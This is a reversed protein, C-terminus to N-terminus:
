DLFEGLKISGPLENGARWRNRNSGSCDVGYRQLVNKELDMTINDEWRRRRGGLPRRGECRGLLFGEAGKRKGVRTVLGAWRM